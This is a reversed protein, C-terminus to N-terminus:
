KMQMERKNKYFEDFVESYTTIKCINNGKQIIYNVIEYLNDYNSLSEYRSNGHLCFPYFGPTLCCNDIYKKVDEIEQMDSEFFGKRDGLNYNKSMGVTDSYEFYKQCIEEGKFSNKQTFDARILGRIKFGEEELQKKVRITNNKWDYDSTQFEHVGDTYGLDSLNGFYHALIEGNEKEVMKLIDKINKKDADNIGLHTNYLNEVICAVCLPVKLKHFVEYCEFTFSNCDDVVFAFYAKDFLPNLECGIFDNLRSLTSSPLYKYLIKFDGKKIFERVLSASVISNNEKIRPIEIVSIGRSPLSKKMLENYKRTIKDNPETGVFRYKINLAPAILKSFITLDRNINKELDDDIIKLFYEPFTNNSIIMDDSPVIIIDKINETGKMVMSLRESFSFFSKDESVLFIILLDVYEKAKKILHLHGKTFPNCNMVISGIKNYKYFEFSYFYKNIYYNIIINEDIKKISYNGYSKNIKEKISNYIKLAYLTNVIQNCHFISDVFWNVDLDYNYFIDTLDINPIGKYKKNNDFVIVIDGSKINSESILKLQYFSNNWSGHNVVNIEYNDINVYKQIISALTYKDEVYRGIILCQGFLHITRTAKENLDITIRKNNKVNYYKSKCNNLYNIGKTKIVDMHTKLFMDYYNPTYLGDFFVEPELIKDCVKLNHNSYNTYIKNNYEIIKDDEFEINVTYVGIDQTNLYNLYKETYNINFEENLYDEYAKYLSCLSHYNYFSFPMNLINCLHYLVEYESELECLVLDYNFDGKNIFSNLEICELNAGKKYFFDQLYINNNKSIILFDKGFQNFFSSDNFYHYLSKISYYDTGYVYAGLLQDDVVIPLELYMNQNMKEKALYYDKTTFKKFDQNIKIVDDLGSIDKINIVGYLMNQSIFYINYNLNKIYKILKYAKIETKIIDTNVINLENINKYVM